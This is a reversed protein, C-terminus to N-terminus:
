RKASMVALNQKWITRTLSGNDVTSDRDIVDSIILVAACKASLADHLCEVETFSLLKVCTITAATYCVWKPEMCRQSGPWIIASDTNRRTMNNLSEHPREGALKIVM